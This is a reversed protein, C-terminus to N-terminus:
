TLVKILWEVIEPNLYAESLLGAAMMLFVFLIKSRDWNMSKKRFMQWFLLIWAAAYLLIHPFLCGICLLIGRIGLRMVSAVLLVGGSFGTWMICCVAVARRFRTMGAFAAAGFPIMRCFFLYRLYEGTRISGSTYQNLFYEHFIGTMAVYDDAIFNAYLIGFAFGAMFLFLMQQKEKSLQM